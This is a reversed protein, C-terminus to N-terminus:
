PAPTGVMEGALFALVLRAFEEPKELPAFHGTGPMIVLQADPILTALRVPQDPKVFEENAGDLILFPTTIESLDDEAFSPAIAYLAGLQAFLEEFREPQPSLRQYDSAMQAVLSELQRVPLPFNWVKRPSTQQM